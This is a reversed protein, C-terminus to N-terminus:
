SKAEADLLSDLDEWFTRLTHHVERLAAAGEETVALYRKPHGSRGPELEGQSSELFGKDELRDLTVYVSGRSVSRGLGEELCKRVLPPYAGKGIRLIALLVVQEFTGLLNNPNPM